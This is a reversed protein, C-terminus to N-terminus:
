AVAGSVLSHAVLYTVIAVALPLRWRVDVSPREWTLCVM